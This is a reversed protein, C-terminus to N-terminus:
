FLSGVSKLIGKVPNKRGEYERRLEQPSVYSESFVKAIEDLQPKAREEILRDIHAPRFGGNENIIDDMANKRALAANNFASLDRIVRRKGEDSQTLSPIRQLYMQVEQQTVRSGFTKKVDRLFDTQLKKFEQAEPSALGFLDLGVGLFPIGHKLAELASGTLPGPLKGSNILEVMRELRLNGEKAGDAEENIKAYAPETTKDVQEQQKEFKEQRRSIEQRLRSKDLSSLAPNAMAKHLGQLERTSKAMPASEYGLPKAMSFEKIQKQTDKFTPAVEPQTQEQMGMPRGNSAGQASYPQQQAGFQPQQTMQQQPMQQMAQPQEFGGESQGILEELRAQEAEPLMRKILASQTPAPLQSIEPPLGLSQLISAQAQRQPMLMQQKIMERQVAPDMFAAEEPLGMSKFFPAQQRALNQQQIQQLKSQALSQIGSGLGTAVGGLAEGLMSGLGYQPQQQSYVIGPMRVTKAM